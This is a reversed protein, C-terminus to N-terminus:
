YDWIGTIHFEITKFLFKYIKIRCIGSKSIDSDIKEKSFHKGPIYKQLEASNIYQLVSEVWGNKLIILNYKIGEPLSPNKMLIPLSLSM